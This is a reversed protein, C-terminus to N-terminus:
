DDPPGMRALVGDLGLGFIPMVPWRATFTATTPDATIELRHPSAVVALDVYLVGDDDVAASAAIPHGPVDTWGPRLPVCMVDDGEHVTMEGDHVELGTVSPHSPAGTAAREFRGGGARALPAGAGTREAATPVRLDATRDAVAADGAPDPDGVAGLAPLLREWIHDMVRQMLETHSFFAVVTDHGPLVVMYQGFAGDGRYGHQGMWLQFGYGQHWDPDAWQPNDIQKTSAQDIWWGPLISRGEWRGRDLHLQGLRAIADLDTFVGSFGVDVGPQYRCWRLDGIGIPDLLRERLQDVLRRGTLRNLITSLALVPPQNYAFWTGPEHEPPLHLFAGVVDAPDAVLADLLTEDAHGTAMSALHRIRMRGTREDVGAARAPLHDVVLDDLSLLGDGVALGLAAGTFSKSLSYVLRLRDPGHPSWYTEVARRGHRQIILGHPEIGPDSEIADVFGVLGAPDIGLESPTATPFTM